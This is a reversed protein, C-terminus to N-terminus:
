ESFSSASNSEEEIEKMLRMQDEESLADFRAKLESNTIKEYAEIYRKRQEMFTMKGTLVRFVYSGTWGLIIMILIAESWIGASANDFGFVLFVGYGIGGILLAFLGVQIVNTRTLQEFREKVM